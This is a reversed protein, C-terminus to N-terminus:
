DEFAHRILGGRTQNQPPRPKHVYRKIHQAASSLAEIDSESWSVDRGRTTSRHRIPETPKPSVAMAPRAVQPIFVVSRRGSCRPVVVFVTPPPSVWEGAGGLHVPSKPFGKPFLPMRYLITPDSILSSLVENWYHGCNMTPSTRGRLSTSRFATRICAASFRGITKLECANPKEGARIRAASFRGIIKWECANPKEGARISAASCRIIIKLECANSKESLALPSQNLKQSGSLILLCLDHLVLVLGVGLGMCFDNLEGIAGCRISCVPPLCTTFAASLSRLRVIGPSLNDM